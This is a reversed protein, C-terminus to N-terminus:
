YHLDRSDSRHSPRPHRTELTGPKSGKQEGGSDRSREALHSYQNRQRHGLPVCARDPPQPGTSSASSKQGGRDARAEDEDSTNLSTRKGTSKDVCYFTGGRSKRCVLRYRTKM